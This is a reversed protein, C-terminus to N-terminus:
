GTTGVSEKRYADSLTAVGLMKRHLDTVAPDITYLRTLGAAHTTYQTAFRQPQGISMLFRDESAATLWKAKDLGMSAALVALDHSLIFDEPTHGHQLIVAANYCDVSSVITGAEYMQHVRQVRAADRRDLVRPELPKADTLPLRDSQAEDFMRQLEPNTSASVDSVDDKHTMAHSRGTLAMLSLAAICGVFVPLIYSTIRHIMTLLRERLTSKISYKAGKEKDPYLGV